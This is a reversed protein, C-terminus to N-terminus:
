RDGAFHMGIRPLARQPSAQNASSRMPEDEVFRIAYRLLKTADALGLKTKINTRHADVTKATIGLAAAITRPPEGHGILTLVEIERESLRCLQSSTRPPSDIGVFGAVLNRMITESVFLEGRIVRRIGEVVRHCDEHKMIYGNAGARLAREAHVNEDRVSFVLVPTAVQESRLRRILELGCGDRYSLELLVVDPQYSQIANVAGRCRDSEGCIELDDENAVLQNLGLRLLPQENIIFIRYRPTDPTPDPSM